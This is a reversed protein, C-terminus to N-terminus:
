DRGWREAEARDEEAFLPDDQGNMLAAMRSMVAGIEREPGYKEGPNYWRMGVELADLNLSWKTGGEKQREESACFM